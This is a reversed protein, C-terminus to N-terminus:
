AGRKGASSLESFIYSTTTLLKGSLLPSSLLAAMLKSSREADPCLKLDAPSVFLYPCIGDRLGRKM